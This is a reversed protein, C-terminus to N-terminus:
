FIWANRTKWISWSMLITIEMFFPVKLQRKLRKVAIHSQHINPAFLGISQWCAKSFNCKLFLHYITEDRQLICMECNYDDLEYNRRRLVGRTNIRDKLLLWFFVKHKMQCKCAWLWKISSDVQRHGIM